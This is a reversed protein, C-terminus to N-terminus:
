KKEILHNKLALALLVLSPNKVSNKNYFYPSPSNTCHPIRDYILPHFSYYFVLPGLPNVVSGQSTWYLSRPFHHLHSCSILPTFHECFPHSSTPQNKTLWTGFYAFFYLSYIPCASNVVSSPLGHISTLQHRHWYQPSSTSSRFLTFHQCSPLHPIIQLM